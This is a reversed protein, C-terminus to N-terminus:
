IGIARRPDPNPIVRRRYDHELFRASFQRCQDIAGVLVSATRTETQGGPAPVQESLELRETKGFARGPRRAPGFVNEGIPNGSFYNERGHRPFAMKFVAQAMGDAFMQGSKFPLSLRGGASVLGGHTRVITHHMSGLGSGTSGFGRRVSVPQKSPKPLPDRRCIGRELKRM